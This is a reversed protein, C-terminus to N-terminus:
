TRGRTETIDQVEIAGEARSGMPRRVRGRRRRREALGGDVETRPRGRRGAPRGRRCGRVDGVGGGTGHRGRRGDRHCRPLRQPGAGLGGRPGLRAAHAAGGPKGLLGGRGGVGRAGSPPPGRSGGSALAARAPRLGDGGRAAPGEARGVGGPRAVGDDPDGRHGRGVAARGPPGPEGGGQDGAAQHHPAPTPAQDDDGRWGPGPTWAWSGRWCAACPTCATPRRAGCWVAPVRSCRPPSRRAGTPRCATCSSPTPPRGAGAAPIDVTFGDFAALRAAAEAEQGMSTWVDTYVADAGDVAEAPDTTVTLDGGCSAVLAVDEASPGYGDPVGGPGSARCPPPWPWRGGSTTPTASTPSADARGATGARVGPAPDLLDALAQCPHARDSLLNVVPVPVGAGDLAAAMRVLSGHDVVRASVVAHYCALTRAVDAATERVDMGSRTARSTSRTAVSPWWRWRRATAPATPPSRSCWPWASATSCRAASRGPGARGPGPRCGARRPRPRRHRPRSADPGHDRDAM